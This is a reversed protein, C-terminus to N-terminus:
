RPRQAVFAAVETHPVEEVQGVPLAGLTFPGFAVRMLQLISLGLHRLIKRVERNKGETIVISLWVGDRTPTPEINAHVPGYQVGDITVGQEIAVLAFPDVFGSVRVRYQRQWGSSPLELWRALEGDNTLLLLGETNQDLRGVSIVRPLEGPLQDFVTPRGQPDYHTTVVGFPKHFRWMRTTEVAEIPRGDVALGAVGAVLFAPSTLVVGDKCIRGQEIMREVERRSAVGARALVKAVREGQGPPLGKPSQSDPM